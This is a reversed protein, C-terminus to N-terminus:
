FEVVLNAKDINDFSLVFNEIETALEISNDVESVSKISGQFARRSKNNADMVGRSLKIKVMAGLFRRYHELTFLPRELGPSSVELNYQGSILDEVDLMASVQESVRACDEVDIGKDSDIYVRLTSYKGNGM